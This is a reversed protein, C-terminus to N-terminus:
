WLYYDALAHKGNRQAKKIEKNNHTHEINMLGIEFGNRKETHKKQETENQKTIRSTTQLM